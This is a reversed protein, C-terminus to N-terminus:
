WFWSWSKAEEFFKESFKAGKDQLFPDTFARGVGSAAGIVALSHLIKLLKKPM